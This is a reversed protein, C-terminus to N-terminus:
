FVSARSTATPNYINIITQSTATFLILQHRNFLIAPCVKPATSHALQAARLLNPIQITEKKPVDKNHSSTRASM